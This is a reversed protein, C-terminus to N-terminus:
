DNKKELTFSFLEALSIDLVNTIRLLTKITPNTSGTEIRRLASDEIDLERALDIQRMGKEERIAVIRKGLQKIFTKEAKTLPM